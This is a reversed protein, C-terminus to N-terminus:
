CVCGSHRGRGFIFEDETTSDREPVVVTAEEVVVGTAGTSAAIRVTESGVVLGRTAAGQETVGVETTGEFGM